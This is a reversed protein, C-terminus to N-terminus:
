KQLCIKRLHYFQFNGFSKRKRMRLLHMTIPERGTAWEFADKVTEFGTEIDFSGNENILECKYM